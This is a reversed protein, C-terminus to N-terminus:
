DKKLGTFQGVDDSRFDTCDVIEEGQQKVLLFLSRKAGDEWSGRIQDALKEIVMIAIKTKGTGTLLM